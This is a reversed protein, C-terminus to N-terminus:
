GPASTPRSAVALALRRPPGGQLPRAAGREWERRAEAGVRAKEARRQRRRDRKDRLGGLVGTRIGKSGAMVFRRLASRTGVRRGVGCRRWLGRKRNSAPGITCKSDTATCVKTVPALEPEDRRARPPAMDSSNSSRAPRRREALLALGPHWAPTPASVHWIAYSESTNYLDGRPAIATPPDKANRCSYGSRSPLSACRRGDPGASRKRSATGAATLPRPLRELCSRPAPAALERDEHM